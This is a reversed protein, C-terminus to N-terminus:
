WAEENWNRYGRSVTRRPEKNGQIEEQLRICKATQNEPFHKMATSVSYKSAFEGIEVRQKASYKVYKSRGTQKEELKKLETRVEMKEIPTLCIVDDDDNNLVAVVESPKLQPAFYQKIGKPM